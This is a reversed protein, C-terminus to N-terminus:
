FQSDGHVGRGNVCELGQDVVDRFSGRIVEIYVRSHMAGDTIVPQSSMEYCGRLTMKQCSYSVSREM